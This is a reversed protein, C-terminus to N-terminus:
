ASRHRKPAVILTPWALLGILEKPEVFVVTGARLRRAPSRTSSKLYQQVLDLLTMDRQATFPHSEVWVRRGAFTDASDAERGHRSVGFDMCGHKIRPFPMDAASSYISIRKDDPPSGLLALSALAVITSHALLSLTRQLSSAHEIRRRLTTETTTTFM